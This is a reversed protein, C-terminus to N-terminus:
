GRHSTKTSIVAEGLNDFISTITDATHVTGSDEKLGVVEAVDVIAAVPTAVVAVAAKAVSSIFGFM